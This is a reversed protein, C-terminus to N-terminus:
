HAAGGGGGGGVRACVCVCAHTRACVCRWWWVLDPGSPSATGLWLRVRHHHNHQGAVVGADTLVSIDDLVLVKLSPGLMAIAVLGKDTVAEGGTIDVTVCWRAQPEAGADVVAVKGTISETDPAEVGNGNAQAHLCRNIVTAVFEDSPDEM